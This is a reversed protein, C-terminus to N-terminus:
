AVMLTTRALLMTIKKYYWELCKRIDKTRSSNDEIMAGQYVRGRARGKDVSLSGDLSGDTWSLMRLQM